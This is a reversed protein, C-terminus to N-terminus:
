TLVVSKKIRRVPSRVGQPNERKTPSTLPCPFVSVGGGLELVVERADPLFWAVENVNRRYQITDTGTGATRVLWRM